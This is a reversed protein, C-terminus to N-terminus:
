IWFFLMYNGLLVCFAAEKRRITFKENFDGVVLWSCSLQSALRKLLEWSSRPKPEGYFRTFHWLPSDDDITVTVNIHYQSFSRLVCSVSKDWLVALGDSCGCGDVGFGHM